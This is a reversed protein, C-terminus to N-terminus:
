RMEVIDTYYYVSSTKSWDRKRNEELEEESVGLYDLAEKHTTFIKKITPACYYNYEVICYLPRKTQDMLVEKTIDYTVEM